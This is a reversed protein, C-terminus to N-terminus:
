INFLFSPPPPYLFCFNECRGQFGCLIRHLNMPPLKPSSILFLMSQKFSKAPTSYPWHDHELPRRKASDQHKTAKPAEPLRLLEELQPSKMQLLVIVLVLGLNQALRWCLLIQVETQQHSDWFCLGHSQNTKQSSLQGRLCSGRKTWM